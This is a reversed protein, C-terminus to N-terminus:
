NNLPGFNTTEEFPDGIKVQERAFTRLKEKFASAIAEHVYVRTCAVCNQGMNYMCGWFISQVAKDLDADSDVIAASKGGLEM